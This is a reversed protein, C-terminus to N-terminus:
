VRRIELGLSESRMTVEIRVFLVMQRVEIIGNWGSSDVFLRM